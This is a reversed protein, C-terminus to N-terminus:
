RKLVVTFAQMCVHLRSSCRPKRAKWRRVYVKHQELLIADAIASTFASDKSLLRYSGWLSKSARLSLATMKQAYPFAVNDFERVVHTFKTSYLAPYELEMWFVSEPLMCAVTRYESCNPHPKNPRWVQAPNSDTTWIMSSEDLVCAWGPSFCREWHENFRRVMEEAEKMPHSAELEEGRLSTFFKRHADAVDRTIFEGLPAHRFVLDDDASWLDRWELSDNGANVMAAGLTKEFNTWTISASLPSLLSRARQKMCAIMDTKCWPPIWHDFYERENWSGQDVGPNTLLRPQLDLRHPSEDRRASRADRLTATDGPATVAEWVIHGRPAGDGVAPADPSYQGVDPEPQQDNDLDTDPLFVGSADLAQAIRDHNM